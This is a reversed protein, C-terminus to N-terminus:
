FEISEIHEPRFSKFLGKLTKVVSSNLYDVDLVSFHTVKEANIKVFRTPLHKQAIKELCQDVVKCKFVAPDYFHCVFRESKKAADFFEREDALEEYKGHGNVM